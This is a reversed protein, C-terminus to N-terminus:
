VRERWYDLLDAMTREFPIKPQWGTCARFKDYNCWLIMVDSPRMRAPDQRVEIEVQGLSLLLDLVSQISRATGSGINYVEGPKFNEVVVDSKELLKFFIEKGKESKLNITMGKKNRNFYHFVYSIGGFLPPYKRGIEGWLPEIKIVEAGLDALIMTTYPGFHVHSLDLIRVGELVTSM